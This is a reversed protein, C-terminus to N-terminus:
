CHGLLIVPTVHEIDMQLKLAVHCAAYASQCYILVNCYTQQRKVGEKQYECKCCLIGKTSIRVRNLLQTIKFFM